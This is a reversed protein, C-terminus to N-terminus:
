IKKIYVTIYVYIIKNLRKYVYKIDTVKYDQCFKVNGIDTFTYNNNLNVIDGKHPIPFKDIDISDWTDIIEFRSTSVDQFTIQTVHKM